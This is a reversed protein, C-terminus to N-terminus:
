WGASVERVAVMVSGPCLFFRAALYRSSALVGKRSMYVPRTTFGDSPPMAAGLSSPLPSLLLYAILALFAVL